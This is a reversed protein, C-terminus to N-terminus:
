IYIYIYIYMCICIYTYELCISISIYIYLSIHVEDARGKAAYLANGLDNHAYAYGPDLRLAAQQAAIAQGLQGAQYLIKGMSYYSRASTPQLAISRAYSDAAQAL